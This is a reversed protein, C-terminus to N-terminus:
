INEHDWATIRAHFGDAKYIDHGYTIEELEQNEEFLSENEISNLGSDYSMAIDKNNIVSNRSGRLHQDVAATDRPERKDGFVALGCLNQEDAYSSRSISEHHSSCLEDDDTHDELSLGTYQDRYKGEIDRKQYKRWEKANSKNLEQWHLSTITRVANLKLAAFIPCKLLTIRVM